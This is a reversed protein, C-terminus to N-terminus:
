KRAKFFARAGALWQTRDSQSTHKSAGGYAAQLLGAGATGAWAAGGHAVVFDIWRTGSLGAVAARGFRAVAFRRVLHELERALSADDAANAAVQRLERLAIRRLKARPRLQGYVVAAVIVILLLALGWWGPAPPWWGPAPPAHPPAMQALWAPTMGAM